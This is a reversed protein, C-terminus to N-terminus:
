KITPVSLSAKLEEAVKPASTAKIKIHSYLTVGALIILSAALTQTTYPEDYILFGLLGGCFTTVSGIQGIFVPTATRHLSFLLLQNIGGLIIVLSILGLIELRLISSATFLESTLNHQQGLTPLVLLYSFSSFLNTMMAVHLVPLNSPWKRVRYVNATGLCVPVLALILLWEPNTIISIHGEEITVPQLLFLMSGAIAFMLLLLHSVRFREMGLSLSILWTVLLPLAYALSAIGVGLQDAASFVILQPLTFGLLSATAFFPWHRKVVSTIDPLGFGALIVASGAAQLFAIHIPHFGNTVLAKSLVVLLALTFGLGWLKLFNNM